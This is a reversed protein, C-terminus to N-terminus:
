EGQETYIKKLNDLRSVANQMLLDALVLDAMAETVVVARPVIVPDHRGKINISVDNGNKDVTFQTQAISPTPKFYARAVLMSGDTMGGLCGGAHNSTKSIDGFLNTMGDNNESGAYFSSKIGDGIEVAKVAGVSFLAASLRADIKEFVTEGLGVPLGTAHIEVVGGVSDKNRRYEGILKMAKASADEDPMYLPSQMVKDRSVKNELPNLYREDIEVEGISRTFSIVDIGFESLLKAAVAGAAVRALTERGSSRGGGRYDRIGYKKDFTMDAHGPRYIDKINGYDSSHQDKNRVLLAIPTGLTKEEFVGSLIEVEDGENRATTFAGQGPKRRRMYPMIDDVSLSLGAPCGDIVVGLGCGHSEGFTSVHFLTGFESGPM